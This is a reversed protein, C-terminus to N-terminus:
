REAAMRRKAEMSVGDARLIEGLAAFMEFMGRHDPLSYWLRVLEGAKKGLWEPEVPPFGHADTFGRMVISVLDGLAMMAEYESLPEHVNGCPCKAWFEHSEWCRLWVGELIAPRHWAEETLLSNERELPPFAGPDVGALSDRLIRRGREQARRYEIPDETVEM